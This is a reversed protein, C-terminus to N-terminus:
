DISPFSEITIQLMSIVSITMVFYVVHRIRVAHIMEVLLPDPDPRMELSELEFSIALKCNQIQFTCVTESLGQIDGFNHIVKILSILCKNVFYSNFVFINLFCFFLLPVVHLFNQLCIACM